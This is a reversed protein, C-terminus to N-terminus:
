VSIVVGPLVVCDLKLTAKRRIRNREEESMGVLSQPLPVSEFGEAVRSGKEELEAAYTSGVDKNTVSM